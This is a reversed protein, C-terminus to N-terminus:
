RSQRPAQQLRLWTPEDRRKGDVPVVDGPALAFGSEEDHRHTEEPAEDAFEDAKNDAPCCDGRAPNRSKELRDGDRKGRHEGDDAADATHSPQQSVDRGFELALRQEHGHLDTPGEILVCRRRVPAALRKKSQM